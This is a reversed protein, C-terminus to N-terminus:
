AQTGAFPARFQAVWGEPYEEGGSLGVVVDFERDEPLFHTGFVQDWISVVAGYNSNGEAPNDSHHWRHIGPTAFVRDLPGSDVDVNCHQIQGHIGRLVTYAIRTGHDPQLFSLSVSEYAMDLFLDVPHFRTANGWWLRRPSHHVAHLAWLPPREHALRHHWYHTLDFTLVLVAVRGALPLRQFWGFGRRPRKPGLLSAFAANALQALGSTLIAHAVDTRTDGHDRNWASRFPHTRELVALTGWGALILGGQALTDAVLRPFRRGLTRALAPGALSAAVMGGYLFWARRRRARGGSVGTGSEPPLDGATRM